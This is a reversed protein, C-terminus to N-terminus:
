NTHLVVSSTKWHSISWAWLEDLNSPREQPQPQHLFQLAQLLSDIPHKSDVPTDASQKSLKRGTSDTALPLHLYSPQDLNLLQQLYRQRPASNILDAGRVVHTIGQWADDVVVALQYAHFGDARRIIFDGIERELNQTFRGQLRDDITIDMDQTVLRICNTAKEMRPGLRCTGPYIAGERGMQAVKSIDKRTCCCPYALSSQTLQELAAAYSESRHSQYIVEGDWQFGFADLDHLIASAAGPVQRTQDLDEIRVLWEGAHYRADLYSGVAAILSGFHLSGTPSPAFRGRYSTSNMPFTLPRPFLYDDLSQM